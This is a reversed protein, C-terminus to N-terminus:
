AAPKLKEALSRAWEKIEQWNRADMSQSPSVGAQKMVSKVLQQMVPNLRAFDVKGGFAEVSVPKLDPYKSLIQSIYERKVKEKGEPTSATLCVMFLAVKKNLLELRHAAFFDRTNALPHDARVSSGIIIAEYEEISEQYSIPHVDVSLQYEDHLVLAIVQAVEKTAGYGSSYALLIKMVTRILTKVVTYVTRRGL